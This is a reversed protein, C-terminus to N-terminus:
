TKLKNGSDHPSMKSKNKEAVVSLQLGEGSIKISLRGRCWFPHITKFIDDAIRHALGEAFIPEERFSWFYLKLSKSEICLKDPAFELTVKNFDPQHTVPCFSTLENSEFRVLRVNSPRPFTDLKKSPGGAKKGLYTFEKKSM